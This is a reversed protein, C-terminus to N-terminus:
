TDVLAGVADIDLTAGPVGLADDLHELLVQLDRDDMGVNRRGPLDHHSQADLLRAGAESAQQAFQWLHHSSSTDSGAAAMSSPPASCWRRRPQTPAGCFRSWRRAPSRISM